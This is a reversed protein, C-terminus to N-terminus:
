SLSVAAREKVCRAIASAAKQREGLSEVGLEKCKTLFKPRGLETYLECVGDLGLRQLGELAALHGVGGADLAAILPATADASEDSTAPRAVQVPAGKQDLAARAVLSTLAHLYKDPHTQLLMCHTGSPFPTLEVKRVGGSAQELYASWEAV